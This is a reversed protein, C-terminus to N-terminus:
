TPLATGGKIASASPKNIESICSLRLAHRGAFVLECKTGICPDFVDDAARQMIFGVLHALSESLKPRWQDWFFRVVSLEICGQVWIFFCGLMRVLREGAFLPRDM